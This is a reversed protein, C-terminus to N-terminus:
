VAPPIHLSQVHMQPTVRLLTLYSYYNRSINGSNYSYLMILYVSILLPMYWWRLHLVSKCCTFVEYLM